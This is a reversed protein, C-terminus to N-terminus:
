RPPLRRLVLEAKMDLRKAIRDVIELSVNWDGREIASVNGQSMGLFSALEQQTLKRRKREKRLQEAFEQTLSM